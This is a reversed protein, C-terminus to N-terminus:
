HDVFTDVEVGQALTAHITCHRAARTAADLRSDPLSPWSVDLAMTAVRKPKDGMSWRVTISMDQASADFRAGYTALTTWTCSAISCALLQVSDLMLDGDIRLGGAGIETLTISEATTATVRM